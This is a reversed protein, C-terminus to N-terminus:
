KIRMKPDNLMLGHCKIMKYDLLVAFLSKVNEVLCCYYYIFTPLVDEFRDYHRIIKISILRNIINKPVGCCLSDVNSM